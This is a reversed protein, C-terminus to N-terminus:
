GTKKRKGYTARKEKVKFGIKGRSKEPPAMLQRIADFITQISEDHNEIKRELETLKSALEKHTSLVERLRVFARMIAINVKVARPSNLLGSLM